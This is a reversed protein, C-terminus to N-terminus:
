VGNIWQRFRGKRIRVLGPRSRMLRVKPGLQTERSSILGMKLIIGGISSTLDM